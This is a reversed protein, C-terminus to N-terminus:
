LEDALDRWTPNVAQILNIKWDRHWKEIQRERSRTELVSEHFEHWVLQTLGHEKSFGTVAKARHQEVRQALDNAFGTYLTGYRKNTLIYVYPL